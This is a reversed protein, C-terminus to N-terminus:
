NMGRKQMASGLMQQFMPDAPASPAPAAGGSSAGVETYPQRKSMIQRFRQMEPADKNAKYDAVVTSAMEQDIFDPFDYGRQAAFQRFDARDEPSTPLGNQQFASMLNNTVMKTVADSQMKQAGQVQQAAQEQAQQGAMGGQLVQQFMAMMQDMKAAMGKSTSATEKFGPPLKVANEREWKEYAADTDGLEGVEEGDASNSMPAKGGKEEQMKQKQGGMQPDKVYAKIAADVMGAMEEPKPEYGNKKAQETIQAIVDIIPKNSQWKYNLDKYRSMTGRVQDETYEKDGVKLFNVAAETAEKSPDKPSLKSQAKEMGTPSPDAKPPPPPQQPQAQAAAPDVPAPGLKQAAIQSIIDQNLDLPEPM